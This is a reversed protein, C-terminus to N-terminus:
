YETPRTHLVNVQLGSPSAVAIWSDSAGELSLVTASHLPETKAPRTYVKGEDDASPTRVVGQKYVKGEDDASPPRVM